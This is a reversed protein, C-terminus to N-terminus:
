KPEASLFKGQSNQFLNAGVYSIFTSLAIMGIVVWSGTEFLEGAGVVISLEGLVAALVAYLAGKAFDRLNLGLFKSRM